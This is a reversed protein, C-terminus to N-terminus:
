SMWAAFLTPRNKHGRFGAHLLHVPKLSLMHATYVLHSLFLSWWSRECFSVSYKPHEVEDASDASKESLKDDAADNDM